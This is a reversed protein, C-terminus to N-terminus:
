CYPVEEEAMRLATEKEKVKNVFDERLAQERQMM